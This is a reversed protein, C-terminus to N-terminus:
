RDAITCFTTDNAYFRVVDIGVPGSDGGAVGAFGLPQHAEVPQQVQRQYVVGTLGVVV